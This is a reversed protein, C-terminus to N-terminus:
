RKFSLCNFMYRTSDLLSQSILSVQQKLTLTYNKFLFLKKKCIVTLRETWVETLPQSTTKESPPTPIILHKVHHVDRTAASEQLLKNDVMLVKSTIM